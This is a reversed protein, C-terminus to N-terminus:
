EEDDLKEGKAKALQEDFSNAIRSLNTTLEETIVDAIYDKTLDGNLNLYPLVVISLHATGSPANSAVTVYRSSHLFYWTAAAAFILFLAAM